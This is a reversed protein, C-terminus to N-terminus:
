KETSAGSQEQPERWGNGNLFELGIAYKGKSFHCYRVSGSGHIGVKPDSCFVVAGGSFM